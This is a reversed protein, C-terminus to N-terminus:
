FSGSASVVFPLQAGATSRTACFGVSDNSGGPPIRQNWTAAPAVSSLGSAASFVGSWSTYLTSGNTNLSVNWSTTAQPGANSVRLTACYGSGWDNTPTLTATLPNPPSGLSPLSAGAADLVVEPEFTVRSGGVCGVLKSRFAVSIDAQPAILRGTVRANTGIRLQSGNSYLLLSEPNAGSVQAGDAISLSGQVNVEVNGSAVVQVNPQIDLSAFNFVGASLTVRSGAAFTVNGRTGATFSAVAGPAVAQTGTGVPFTRSALAPLTVNANETLTGSVGSRNGQLVGALTANGGIRSRQGLVGNASSFASGTVRVDNGISFSGAHVSASISSRDRLTVSSTGLLCAQAPTVASVNVFWTFVSTLLDADDRRVRRTDDHIVVKLVHEGTGFDAGALALTGSDNVAIVRGNISWTFSLTNPSPVPGSVSFTVTEGANISVPGTPTAQDVLDVSAYTTLVSAESCVPCYDAYLVRMMCEQVPRYVGTPTYRAGEYAGVAASFPFEPTPLPTSPEVWHSWKLDERQPSGPFLTVNPEYCDNVPDCGPFAFFDEYEDALGFLSHGVEHVAILGADPAISTVSIQGGSGGYTVDNVLVLIQDFEPADAMAVQFATFNDVCILRDLGQCFYTAGLATDRLGGTSGFDAGTENSLVHVLKVNYYDRYAAFMPETFFRDMLARADSTLQAQDQARYGDGLIILDIRNSPPGSSQLVETEFASARAACALVGLCV